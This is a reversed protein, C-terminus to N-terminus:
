ILLINCYDFTKIPYGPKTIWSDWDVQKLISNSEESNPYLRNVQNNFTSKFDETNISKLKYTDIYVQM